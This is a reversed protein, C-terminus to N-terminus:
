LDLVKISWTREGTREIKAYTAGNFDDDDNLIGADRMDDKPLSTSVTGEDVTLKRLPDDASSAM